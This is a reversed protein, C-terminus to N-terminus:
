AKEGGVVKIVIGAVAAFLVYVVPSLDLLLSAALVQMGIARLVDWLLFTLILLAAFFLILRWRHAANTTREM